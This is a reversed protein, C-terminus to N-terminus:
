NRPLHLANTGSCQIGSTDCRSLLETVSGNPLRFDPDIDLLPALVFAREYARPHPLILDPDNSRLEGFSIIDIDLTRPGFRLAPDRRRGFFSEISQCDALLERPTLRTQGILCANWFDPQDAYGVPKTRYLPSIQEVSFGAITSLCDVAGQLIALSDGQNSGLALVVRSPTM